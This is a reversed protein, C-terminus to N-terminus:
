DYLVILEEFHMDYRELKVVVMLQTKWSSEPSAMEDNRCPSSGIAQRLLDIADHKGKVLLWSLVDKLRLFWATNGEVPIFLEVLPFILQTRIRGCLLGSFDYCKGDLLRWLGYDKAIQDNDFRVTGLFQHVFNILQSCNETMHKSCGFDISTGSNIMREIPLIIVPSVHDLGGTPYNRRLQDQSDTWQKIIKDMELTEQEISTKMKVEKNLPCEKDLQPGKCIQCGVQIAHVNEKLNKMGRGLNDLKSVVAALGATNSSSSLSRQIFAKKFIDWTNVVGPTLRDVWRKAIRTLTFLFVCLLVADQSVGLINFLSVINLVRDVHDHADKNKNGFFTEERLERM